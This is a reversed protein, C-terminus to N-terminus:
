VDYSKSGRMPKKEPQWRHSGNVIKDMALQVMFNKVAAAKRVAETDAKVAMLGALTVLLLAM